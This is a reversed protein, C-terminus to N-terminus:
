KCSRMTDASVSAWHTSDFIYRRTTAQTMMAKAVRKVVVKVPQSGQSSGEWSHHGSSHYASGM